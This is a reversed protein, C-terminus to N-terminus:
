SLPPRCSLCFRVLSALVLCLGALVLIYCDNQKRRCYLDKERQNLILYKLDDAQAFNLSFFQGLFAILLLRLM